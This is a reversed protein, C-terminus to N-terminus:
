AALEEDDECIYTIVAEVAVGDVRRVMCGYGGDGYGSSSVVGALHAGWQADSLTLECVQDYFQDKLTADQCVGEFLFEDFFGAQGSDVGVDIGSDEWTSDEFMTDFDQTHNFHPTHDAHVIHLYAVRGVYRQESADWKRVQELFYERMGADTARDAKEQEKARWRAAMEMDSTDKHYGVHAKWTGTLANQINGACWTDMDYCPDTVRITTMNVAFARTESISDIKSIRM